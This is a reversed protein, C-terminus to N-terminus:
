VKGNEDIPLDILFRTGQKYSGDYIISGGEEVVFTRVISLGMGTGPSDKGRHLPKFLNAQLEAPIGPGNDELRIRLSNQHREFNLSVTGTGDTARAVNDILNTFISYLKEETMILRVGSIEGGINLNLQPFLRETRWQLRRVVETLRIRPTLPMDAEKRVNQQVSSIVQNIEKFARGIKDLQMKAANNSVENRLLYLATSILNLPNKIEHALIAAYRALYRLRGMREQQDIYRRQEEAVIRSLDFEHFAIPAINPMVYTLILKSQSESTLNYHNCALTMAIAMPKSGGTCDCIIPEGANQPDHAVQQILAFIEAASDMSKIPLLDNFEIIPSFHQRLFLATKSSQESFILWCRHVDQPNKQQAIAALSKFTIIDKPNAPHWSADLQSPSVSLIIRKVNRAQIAM